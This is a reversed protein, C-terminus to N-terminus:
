IYIYIIHTQNILVHNNIQELNQKNPWMIPAKTKTKALIALM